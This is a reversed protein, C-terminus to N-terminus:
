VRERHTNAEAPAARQKWDQEHSEHVPCKPAAPHNSVDPKPTDPDSRQLYYPEPPRRPGGANMPRNAVSHSATPILTQVELDSAM